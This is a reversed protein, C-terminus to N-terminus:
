SNEGFSKNDGNTGWSSNLPAFQASNVICNQLTICPFNRQPWKLPVSIQGTQEIGENVSVSEEAEEEPVAVGVDM